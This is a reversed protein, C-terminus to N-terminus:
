LSISTTMKLTIIIEDGDYSISNDENILALRQNM